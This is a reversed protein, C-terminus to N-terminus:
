DNNLKSSISVLRSIATYFSLIAIIVITWGLKNILLGIVLLLMRVEFRLFGNKFIENLKNVNKNLSFYTAEGKARVYSVSISFGCAIVAWVAFADNNQHIFYYAIASYLIVEKFRDTTADLLAGAASQSKQLRALEGDLSDFLGFIILLIAALILKNSIISWAVLLHLFVGLITVSNPTLKGFSLWNLFIAVKKIIKRVLIDVSDILKNIKQDMLDNYSTM